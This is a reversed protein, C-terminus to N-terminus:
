AKEFFDQLDTQTGKFKSCPLVVLVENGKGTRKITAGRRRLKGLGRELRVYRRYPNETVEILYEKELDNQRISTVITM